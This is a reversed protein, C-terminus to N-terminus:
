SLFIIIGLLIVMFGVWLSFEKMNNKRWEQVKDLVARDSAAILILLLPLVFILNYVLLYGVGSLYTSTDHLLGLIMIYPGGTCPFEYLGVLLGLLLVTPVSAKQILKAMTSHSADPIKLKIPFSPFFDGLLSIVGWFVLIVAGIKAMFHPVNLFQLAQLLGLGIMLYAVFIGSIFFGGIKLVDSRTRELSFLFAITLLLVSFACPNVSDVAAAVLVVPMVIKGGQDWQSLIGGGASFKLLALFAGLILVALIVVLFRKNM